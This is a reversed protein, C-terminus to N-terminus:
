NISFNAIYSFKYKHLLKISFSINGLKSMNLNMLTTTLLMDMLRVIAVSTQTLLKIHNNTLTTRAVHPVEIIFCSLTLIMLLEYFILGEFFHCSSFPVRDHKFTSSPPTPNFPSPPPKGSIKLVTSPSFYFSVVSSRFNLRLIPSTSKNM